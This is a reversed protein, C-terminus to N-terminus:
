CFTAATSTTGQIMVYSPPPVRPFMHAVRVLFEGEIEKMQQHLQLGTLGLRSLCCITFTMSRGIVENQTAGKVILAKAGGLAMCLVQEYPPDLPNIPERIEM